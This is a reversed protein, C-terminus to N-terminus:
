AARAYIYGYEPDLIPERENNYATFAVAFNMGQDYGFSDFETFYKEMFASQLDVGKRGMMVEVKQYLYTLITAVLILSLLSGMVSKKIDNGEHDLKM